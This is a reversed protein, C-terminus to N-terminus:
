IFPVAFGPTAILIVHLLPSWICPGIQTTKKLFALILSFMNMMVWFEIRSWLWAIPATSPLGLSLFNHKHEQSPLPFVHFDILESDGLSASQCILSFTHATDLTSGPIRPASCFSPAPFLCLFALLPASPKLPPPYLPFHATLLQTVTFFSGSFVWSSHRQMFWLCKPNEKWCCPDQLFSVPQKQTWKNAELFNHVKWEPISSYIGFFLVRSLEACSKPSAWQTSVSGHGGFQPKFGIPGVPCRAAWM